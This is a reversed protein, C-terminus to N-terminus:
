SKTSTFCRADLSPVRDNANLGRWTNTSPKTCTVRVSKKTTVWLKQPACAARLGVHKRLSTTPTKTSCEALGLIWERRVQTATKLTSTVCKQQHRFIETSLTLACSCCISLASMQTTPTRYSAIRSLFARARSFSDMLFSLINLPTLPTPLKSSPIIPETSKVSSCRPFNHTCTARLKVKPSKQLKQLLAFVFTLM